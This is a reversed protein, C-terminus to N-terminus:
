ARKALAEAQERVVRRAVFRREAAALAYRKEQIAALDGRAELEQKLAGCLYGVCANPRHERSLACGSPGRMLCGARGDCPGAFDEPETGAARLYALADTDFFEAALYSCCRGGDWRGAPLPLDRACQTCAHLDGLAQALEARLGRMELAAVVEEPDLTAADRQASLACRLQALTRPGDSGDGDQSM